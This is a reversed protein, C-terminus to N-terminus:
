INTLIIKKVFIQIKLFTEFECFFRRFKKEHKSLEIKKDFDLNKAHFNM